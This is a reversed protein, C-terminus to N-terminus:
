TWCNVEDEKEALASHVNPGMIIQQWPKGTCQLINLFMRPRRTNPALLMECATAISIDEYMALHGTPVLDDEASFWQNLNLWSLSWGYLFSEMLEMLAENKADDFMNPFEGVHFLSSLIFLYCFM